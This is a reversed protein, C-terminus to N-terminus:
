INLAPRARPPAYPACRGAGSWLGVRSWGGRLPAPPSGFDEPGPVWPLIGRLELWCPPIRFPPVPAPSAAAGSPPAAAVPSGSCARHGARRGLRFGLRGGPAGHQVAFGPASPRLGHARCALALPSVSGIVQGPAIDEPDKPGPGSGPIACAPCRAPHGGALSPMRSHSTTRAIGGAGGELASYERHSRSPSGLARLSFRLGPGVASPAFRLSTPAYSQSRPLLPGAAAVFAAGHALALSPTLPPGCAGGQGGSPPLPSEFRGTHPPCPGQGARVAAGNAAALPPHHLARSRGVVFGSLALLPLPAGHQGPRRPPRVPATRSAGFGLVAVRWGPAGGGAGSVRGACAPERGAVREGPAAM